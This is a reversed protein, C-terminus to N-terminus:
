GTLPVRAAVRRSGRAGAPSRDVLALEGITFTEGPRLRASRQATAHPRYGARIHRQDAVRVGASELADILAAHLALLDDAPRILTVPVTHGAGLLAEDGATVTVPRAPPFSAVVADPTLETEFPPVLTVHLPWDSAPFM